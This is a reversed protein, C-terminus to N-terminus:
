AKELTKKELLWKKPKFNIKKLFVFQSQKNIMKKNIIEPNTRTHTKKKDKTHTQTKKKPTKPNKAVTISFFAAVTLLAVAVGSGSDFLSV